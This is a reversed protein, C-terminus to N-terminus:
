KKLVVEDFEIFFDDIWTELGEGVDAAEGVVTRGGFLVLLPVEMSMGTIWDTDLKAPAPSTGERGSMNGVWGIGAVWSPPDNPGVGGGICAVGGGGGWTTVRVPLFKVFKYLCISFNQTVELILSSYVIYKFVM